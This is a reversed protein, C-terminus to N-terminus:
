IVGGLKPAARGTDPSADADPLDSGDGAHASPLPAVGRESLFSEVKLHLYEAFEIPIYHSAIPVECVEADPVKAGMRKTFDPPIVPDRRGCFFLAPCTITPLVDSADHLAVRAVIEVYHQADMGAFADALELFRERDLVPSVLRMRNLGALLWPHQQLKAVAWRVEQARHPLWDRVLQLVFAPRHNPRVDFPRGAVGNVVVLADFVEPRNRYLELAVITGLSWTMVVAHQIHLADLITQADRVHGDVGMTARNLPVESAFLGRYDWTVLRFSDGVQLAFNRWAEHTAGPGNIILMVPADAPGIEYWALEVGDSARAMGTRWQVDGTETLTGGRPAAADRACEARAQAGECGITGKTSARRAIEGNRTCRQRAM